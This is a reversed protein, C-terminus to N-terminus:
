GTGWADTLQLLKKDGSLEIEKEGDTLLKEFTLRQNPNNKWDEKDLRLVNALLDGPYYDGEALIDNQLIAIAKPLLFKLGIKQGLLLRVQDVSLDDVPMKRFLHCKKILPTQYDPEPWYDNELQEISKAQMM